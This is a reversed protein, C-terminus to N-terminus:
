APKEGEPPQELGLQVLRRYLRPRTLGLLKAAKSKNGKARRMARAILEREVKALFEELVIPEDTRQPHAALDAGWAIRKPLDAPTIEVGQAKEHTERITLALEDLNGPWAYAALQDLAEPTFRAVQRYGAANQEELMAQALLPLDELRRGLPPLEIVLTSLAFALERSFQLESVLEAPQRPSTSVIQMRLEPMKLLALLDEHAEPVLREVHELLLTSGPPRQTARAALSRLASRIVNTELVACDLPVLLGDGGGAYHIAKAAHQKGAGPPGVIFVPAGSGSAIAIQLRARVLAPSSGILRHADFRRAMQRRFATVREHLHAEATGDQEFTQSRQDERELIVVVPSSEDHGDALPLFQGRRYVLTGDKGARSVIATQPQGAFAQPPPCLGAALDAPASDAPSRYQCVQGILQNAKVGLWAACARNCYVIRRDEDLAYIPAVGGDLLRAVESAASRSRSM